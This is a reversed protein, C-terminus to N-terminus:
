PMTRFGPGVQVGPVLRLEDAIGTTTSEGWPLTKTSIAYVDSITFRLVAPIQPVHRAVVFRLIHRSRVVVHRQVDALVIIQSVAEPSYDSIVTSVTYTGPALDMFVYYGRADTTTKEVQAASSAVVTAGAIPKGTWEDM